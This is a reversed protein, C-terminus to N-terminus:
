SAAFKQRYHKRRPRSSRAVAKLPSSHLHKGATSARTIMLRALVKEYLSHAGSAATHALKRCRNALHVQTSLPKESMGQRKMEILGDVISERQHMNVRYKTLLNNWLNQEIKSMQKELLPLIPPLQPVGRVFAPNKFESLLSDRSPDGGENEKNEMSGSADNSGLWAVEKRQNYIVNPSPENHIERMSSDHLRDQMVDSLHNSSQISFVTTEHPTSPTAKPIQPATVPLTQTAPQTNAALNPLHPFGSPSNNEHPPPPLTFSVQKRMTSSSAPPLSAEVSSPPTTSTVAATSTAADDSSVHSASDKCTETSIACADQHVGSAFRGVKIPAAHAGDAPVNSSASPISTTVDELKKAKNVQSSMDNAELASDRLDNRVRMRAAESRVIFPSAIPPRSQQPIQVVVAPAIVTEHTGDNAEERVLPVIMNPPRVNVPLNPPPGRCLAADIIAILVDVDEESLFLRESRPTSFSGELNLMSKGQATRFAPCTMFELLAAFCERRRSAPLYSM